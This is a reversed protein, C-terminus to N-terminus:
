RITTRVKNVVSEKNHMALESETFDNKMTYGM